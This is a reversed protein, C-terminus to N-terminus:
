KFYEGISELMDYLRDSLGYSDAKGDLIVAKDPISSNLYIVQEERPRQMGLVSTAYAEIETLNFASEYEILLRSQAMELDSLQSELKVAEDTVATLQIKAMLSFVLLVAACAFGILAVPSVAQQTRAKARAAVQEDVVPLAPIVVKREAERRKEQQPYPYAVTGELDYALSGVVPMNVFTKYEAM